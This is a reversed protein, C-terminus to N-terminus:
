KFNGLKAYKQVDVIHITPNDNYSMDWLMWCTAMAGVHFLGDNRYPTQYDVYRNFCYVAKLNQWIGSKYRSNTGLYNLRGIALVKNCNQKAKQIFKDWLSFPPNTVIYREQFSSQLYDVGNQNIIDNEKVTYGFKALEQSIAGYGSCPELITDNLPFEQLIIDQMVWVLSKPTSYLDDKPRDKKQKKNAYAKGLM